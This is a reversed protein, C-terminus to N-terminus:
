KATGKLRAKYEQKNKITQAREAKAREEISIEPAVPAQVLQEPISWGKTGKFEGDIVEVLYGLTDVQRIIVRAGEGVVKLRGEQVMVPFFAGLGPKTKNPDTAAFEAARYDAIEEYAVVLGCANGITRAFHKTLAQDGVIFKAPGVQPKNPDEIPARVPQPAVAPVNVPENAPVNVPPKVPAKPLIAMLIMLLVFGLVIKTLCGMRRPAETVFGGVVNNVVIQTVETKEKKVKKSPKEPKSEVQPKILTARLVPDLFEGCHRCKKAGPQIPEHCFSCPVTVAQVPQPLPAPAAVAPVPAPATAVVVPVPADVEIVRAAGIALKAGCARCTGTRGAFEDPVTISKGCQCTVVIAV